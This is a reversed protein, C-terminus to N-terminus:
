PKYASAARRHAAKATLEQQQKLTRGLRDLAAVVAALGEAAEKLLQFFPFLSLQM